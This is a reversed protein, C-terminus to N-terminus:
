KRTLKKDSSLIIKHMCQPYFYDINTGIIIKIYTEHYM